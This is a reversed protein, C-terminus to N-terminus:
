KDRLKDMWADVEEDEMRSLYSCPRTIMVSHVCNLCSHHSGCPMVLASTKVDSLAKNGVNTTNQTDNSDEM